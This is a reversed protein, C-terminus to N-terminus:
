GSAPSQLSDRLTRALQPRMVDDVSLKTLCEAFYQHDQDFTSCSRRWARRVSDGYAQATKQWANDPISGYRTILALLDIADRSATARDLGRDANALLKEAFQDELSLATVGAIELTSASLSIRAEHVIELKIPKGDIEIFNRVGDIDARTERIKVIPQQFLGDIDKEYILSRLARYADRGSCLFDVDASERFEDILLAIATGGGFYCELTRLLAADLKSLLAAVVRHRERRYLCCGRAM